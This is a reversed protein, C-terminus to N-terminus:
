SKLKLTMLRRSIIQLLTCKWVQFKWSAWCSVTWPLTCLTTVEKLTIMINFDTLNLKAPTTFYNIQYYNIKHSSPWILLHINNKRLYLHPRLCECHLSKNYLLISITVWVSNEESCILCHLKQWIYGSFTTNKMMIHMDHPLLFTYYESFCCLWKYTSQKIGKLGLLSGYRIEGLLLVTQDFLCTM